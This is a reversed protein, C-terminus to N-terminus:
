GGPLYRELAAEVSADGTNAASPVHRHFRYRLVEGDHVTLDLQGLAQLEDPGAVAVLAGGVEEPQATADGYHTGLAVDVGDVRRLLRRLDTHMMHSLVVVLEVGSGRMERIVDRLARAPELVRVTQRFELPVAPIDQRTPRGLLGTIGVRVGAVRRVVFRRAGQEHALVRSPRAGDRVNASVWGFRSRAVLRRMQAIGEEFDKGTEMYLQVENMGFTDVDLRGANFADVVHRGDTWRGNLEPSLDDGNGLFLSAHPNPLSCRLREHLAAFQAFTVDVDRGEVGALNGHTHTEHFLTLVGDRADRSRADPCRREGSGDGVAVLLVVLSVAVITAARLLRM